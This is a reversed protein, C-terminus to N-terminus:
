MVGISGPVGPLAGFLPQFPAPLTAHDRKDREDFDPM